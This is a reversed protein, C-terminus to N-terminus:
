QDAVARAVRKIRAWTPGPMARIEGNPAVTFVLGRAAFYNRVLLAGTIGVAAGVIVDSPYHATVAVRSVAIVAAYIWVIWRANPWLAGIAIASAFATTAHGSPMGAYAAKWAFPMYSFPDGAVETLSPRARGIMRKVITVFLGPVGIALFIFMLRVAITSLGLRAFRPLGFAALIAMGVLILGIPWLFWGSKGFDTIERFFTAIWWPLRRAGAAMAADFLVMQWVAAAIVIVSFAAFYGATLKPKRSAFVDRAPRRLLALGAAVNEVTARMLASIGRAMETKENVNM